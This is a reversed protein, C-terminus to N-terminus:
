IRQVGNKAKSSERGTKKWMQHTFVGTFRLILHSFMGKDVPLVLNTKKGFTQRQNKFHPNHITLRM